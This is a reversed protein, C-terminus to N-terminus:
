GGVAIPAADHVRNAVLARSRAHADLRGAEEDRDVSDIRGAKHRGALLLQRHLRELADQDVGEGAARWDCQLEGTGGFRVRRRARGGEARRGALALARWNAPWGGERWPWGGLYARLRINWERGSGM